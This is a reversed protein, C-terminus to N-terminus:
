IRPIFRKPERKDKARQDAHEFKNGVSSGMDPDTPTLNAPSNLKSKLYKNHCLNTSHLLHFIVNSSLM